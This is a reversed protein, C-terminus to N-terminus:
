TGGQSDRWAVARSHHCIGVAEVMPRAQKKWPTKFM